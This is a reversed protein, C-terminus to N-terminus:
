LRYITISRIFNNAAVIIVIINNPPIAKNARSISFVSQNISRTIINAHITPITYQLKYNGKRYLLTLEPDIELVNISNIPFILQFAPHWLSCSNM